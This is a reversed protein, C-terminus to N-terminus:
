NNITRKIYSRFRGLLRREMRSIFMQSVGIEEAIERQSREKFFRDHLVKKETEDLGSMMKEIIDRDEVLSYNKEERGVMAMLETENDEDIYFDLSATNTLYSSEMLELVEETTINLYEGIDEPKPSEGLQNTLFARASELKKLMESEKRPLRIIRSKDRFHNKIEGIITPTAFSSFKYGRTVDFRELAKILALSAVQFLDDYEIGRNVFKRAIIEAIYLYHGVLENRIEIDRTEYYQRLLLDEDLTKSKSKHQSDM